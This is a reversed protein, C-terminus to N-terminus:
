ICLHMFSVCTCLHQLVLHVHMIACVCLHELAGIVFACLVFACLVFACDLACIEVLKLRALCVFLRVFSFIM